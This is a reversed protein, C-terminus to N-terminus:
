APRSDGESISLFELQNQVQKKYRINIMASWCREKARDVEIAAQLASSETMSIFVLRTNRRLKRQSLYFFSAHKRECQLTNVFEARTTNHVNREIPM